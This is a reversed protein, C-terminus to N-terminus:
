MQEIMSRRELLSPAPPIHRTFASRHTMKTIAYNRIRRLRFRHDRIRCQIQLREFSLEVGVRIKRRVAVNNSQHDEIVLHVHRIQDRTDAPVITNGADSSASIPLGLSTM